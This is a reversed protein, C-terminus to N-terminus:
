TEKKKSEWCDKIHGVRIGDNMGESSLADSLAEGVFPIVTSFFCPFFHPGRGCSFSSERPDRHYVRDLGFHSPTAVGRINREALM